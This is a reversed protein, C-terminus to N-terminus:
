SAYIALSVYTYLRKNKRYRVGWVRPQSDCIRLWGGNDLPALFFVHAYDDDDDEEIEQKENKSKNEEEVDMEDDDDDEEDEGEVVVTLVTISVIVNYNRSILGKCIFTFLINKLM